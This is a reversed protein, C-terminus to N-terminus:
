ESGGVGLHPEDKLERTRREEAFEIVDLYYRMDEATMVGPMAGERYVFVMLKLDTSGPFPLESAAAVNYHAGIGAAGGEFRPPAAPDRERWRARSISTLAEKMEEAQLDVPRVASDIMRSDWGAESLYDHVALYDKPKSYRLPILMTDIFGTRHENAAIVPQLHEGAALREFTQLYAQHLSPGATHGEDLVLAALIKVAPEPLLSRPVRGHRIEDASGSAWGLAREVKQWTRAEDVRDSEINRITTRSVEALRALQEQSLALAKRRARVVKGIQEM